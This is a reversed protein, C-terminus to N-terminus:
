LPKSTSVLQKSKFSTKVQKGKQCADCLRDQEFKIDPLGNVLKKKALKNLHAMHIHALRKHWFGHIIRKLLYAFFLNSIM